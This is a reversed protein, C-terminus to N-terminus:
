ASLMGARVKLDALYTDTNKSEWYEYKLSQAKGVGGELAEKMIRAVLEENGGTTVISDHITFILLDPHEKAIRIAIVDIIFYSEINQLYYEQFM